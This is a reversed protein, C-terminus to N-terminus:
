KYGIKVRTKQKEKLLHKIADFLLKIEDDHNTIKKERANIKSEIGKYSQIVEKLRIFIQAILVSTKAALESNLVSALMVISYKIYVFPVASSHKLTSLRRWNIVLEDKETKTLQFM